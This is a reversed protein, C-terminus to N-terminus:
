SSVKSHLYKSIIACKNCWKEMKMGVYELIRKRYEQQQKWSKSVKFPCSQFEIFASNELGVNEFFLLTWFDPMLRVLGLLNIFILSYFILYTNKMYFMVIKNKSIIKWWIVVNMFTQNAKTKPSLVKLQYIKSFYIM